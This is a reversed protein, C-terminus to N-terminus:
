PRRASRVMQYTHATDEHIAMINVCIAVSNVGECLICFSGRRAIALLSHSRLHRLEEVVMARRYGRVTGLYRVNEHNMFDRIIRVTLIIISNLQVVYLSSHVKLYCQVYRVFPLLRQFLEAFASLSRICKSRRRRTSIPSLCDSAWSDVTLILILRCHMSSPKPRTQSLPATSEFVASFILCIVQRISHGVNFM